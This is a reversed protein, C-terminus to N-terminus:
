YSQACKDSVQYEGLLHEVGKAKATQSVCDIDHSGIRRSELASTECVGESGGGVNDSGKTTGLGGVINQVLNAQLPTKTNEGNDEGENSSRQVEEQLVVDALSNLSSM